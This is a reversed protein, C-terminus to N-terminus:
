LITGTIYSIIDYYSFVINNYLFIVTALNYKPSPVLYLKEYNM